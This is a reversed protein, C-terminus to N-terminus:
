VLCLGDVWSDLRLVAAVALGAFAGVLVLVAIPRRRSSPLAVGIVLATIAPVWLASLQRHRIFQGGIGDACEPSPTSVVRGHTSAWLAAVVAVGCLGVGWAGLSREKRALGREEIRRGNAAM